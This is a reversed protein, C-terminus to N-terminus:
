NLSISTLADGFPHTMEMVIIPTVACETSATFFSFSGGQEQKSM